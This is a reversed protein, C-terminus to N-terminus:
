TSETDSSVSYILQHRHSLELLDPLHHLRILKKSINRKDRKSRLTGDCLSSDQDKEKVWSHLQDASLPHDKRNLRRLVRETQPGTQGAYAEHILRHMRVTGILQHLLLAERGVILAATTGSGLILGWNSGVVSGWTGQTVWDGVYSGVISLGITGPIGVATVLFPSLSSKLILRRIGKRYQAECTPAFAHVPSKEEEDEETELTLTEHVETEDIKQLDDANAVPSLLHIMIVFLAAIISKM